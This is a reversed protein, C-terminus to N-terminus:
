RGVPGSGAGHGGTAACRSGDERDGGGREEERQRRRVGGPLHGGPDHVVADEPRVVEAPHDRAPDFGASRAVPGADAGAVRELRDAVRGAAAHELHVPGGFHRLEEAAHVGLRVEAIDEDPLALAAAQGQGDGRQGGAIDREVQEERRHADEGGADAGEDVGEPAADRRRRVEVPEADEPQQGEREGEGAFQVEEVVQEEPEVAHADQEERRDEEVEREGERVAAPEQLAFRPQEAPGVRRGERQEAEGEEGAEEVERRQTRPRADDGDALRHEVPQLRHEPREIREGGESGEHVGEAGGAAHGHALLQLPDDPAGAGPHQGERQDIRHGVEGADGGRRRHFERERRHHERRQREGVGDDLVPQHIHLDQELPAQQEGAQHGPDGRDIERREQEASGPESAVLM